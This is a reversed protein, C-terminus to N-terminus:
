YNLLISAKDWDNQTFRFHESIEDRTEGQHRWLALQAITVTDEDDPHEDMYKNIKEAITRLKSPMAGKSFSEGLSPNDRELNACFALFDVEMSERAGLVIFSSQGDSLYRGGKLYIKTAVMNQGPGSNRLYLGQKLYISIRLEGTTRNQLYGNVAMGSSNGNGAATLTAQGTELVDNLERVPPSNQAFLSNVLSFTFVVLFVKYM